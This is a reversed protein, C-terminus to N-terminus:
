MSYTRTTWIQSSIKWTGAARRLTFTLTGTERFPKKSQLGSLVVPVIAYAANGSQVYESVPSAVGKFNTIKDKKFTEDVSSMWATGATPGAWTFPPLEDVVVADSTYRGSLAAANGSVAAALVARLVGAVDLPPKAALAPAVGLVVLGCLALIIRIKM